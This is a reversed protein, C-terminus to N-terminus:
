GGLKECAQRFLTEFYVREVREGKGIGPCEGTSSFWHKGNKLTALRFPYFRCVLPRVEYISCDAGKLFACKGEGRTKRIRYVYPECGRTMCAFAEVPRLVVESITRAEEKLLLIRRTRSKTDGCCIACRTCRFCIGEPYDFEM